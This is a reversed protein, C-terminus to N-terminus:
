EELNIANFWLSKKHPFKIIANFYLARATEIAGLRICEEANEKWIKRM